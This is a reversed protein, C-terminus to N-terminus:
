SATREPSLPFSRGRSWRTGSKYTAVIRASDPWGSKTDASSDISVIVDVGRHNFPPQHYPINHLGEGGDVLTLHEDGSYATM